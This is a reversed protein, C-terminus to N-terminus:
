PAPSSEQSDRPRCPCWTRFSISGSYESSSSITFSWYKPWRIHLAAWQFLGQHQSLSLAPPSPAISSSITPQCWWSLPCSDSHVGPSSLSCPLGTHQRGRLGFLWVPSPLQVVVVEEWLSLKLSGSEEWMNSQMEWMYSEMQSERTEHSLFLSSFITNVLTSVMYLLNTRLAAHTGLAHKM